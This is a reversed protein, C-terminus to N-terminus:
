DGIVWMKMAGQASSPPAGAGMAGAPRQFSSDQRFKKGNDSWALTMTGSMMSSTLKYTVRGTPAPLKSVAAPASRGPAAHIALLAAAALSVVAGRHSYVLTM